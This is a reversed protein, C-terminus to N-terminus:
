ETRLSFGKLPIGQYRKEPDGTNRFGRRTIDANEFDAVIVPPYEAILFAAADFKLASKQARMMAYADSITRAHDFTIDNQWKKKKAAAGPTSGIGADVGPYKWGLGAAKVRIADAAVSIRPYTKWDLTWDGCEMYLSVRWIMKSVYFTYRAGDGALAVLAKLITAAARSEVDGRHLRAIRGSIGDTTTPFASLAAEATEAGNLAMM